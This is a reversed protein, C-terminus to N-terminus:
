VPVADAQRNESIAEGPVMRRFWGVSRDFVLISGAGLLTTAMVAVLPAGIVSMSLNITYHFVVVALVSRGTHLFIWTAIVSLGLSMLLFAPIALGEQPLGAMFFSPLHWVGWAAGIVLSAALPTARDLLRPLVFGRWGLEEGLPGTVLLILLVALLMGPSTIEIAPQAGLATALIMGIFPIGVLLFSWWQFGFRWRLLMVALRRIGDAREHRWTLLLAALTPGWVALVFLPHFASLEGFLREVLAPFVVIVLAVGWSIAFTLVFFAAIQGRPRADVPSASSIM